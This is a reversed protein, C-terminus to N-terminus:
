QEWCEPRCKRTILVDRPGSLDGHGPAELGWTRSGCSPPELGPCLAHLPVSSAESAWLQRKGALVSPCFVSMETTSLPTTKDEGWGAGWAHPRNQPQALTLRPAVILFTCSTQM